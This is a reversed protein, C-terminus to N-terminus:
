IIKKGPWRQVYPEFDLLDFLTIQELADQALCLNKSGAQFYLEM